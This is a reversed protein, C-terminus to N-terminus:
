SKIILEILEAKLSKGQIRLLAVTVPLTFRRPGASGPNIFITGGRSEVSPRHSHGAIVADIGASVPDLDLEHVDHIVYLLVDGVQVADTFPLGGAWSGRDMNGRVARVPAIARLNRIVEDSGVDGAHIILEANRFVKYVEPRLLGHTDSILGVLKMEDPASM